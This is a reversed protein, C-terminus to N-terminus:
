RTLSVRRTQVTRGDSLRLLYLGPQVKAGRADRADWQVPHRGLVRGQYLTTVRRGAVDLVELHVDIPQPALIATRIDGHGPNPWPEALALSPAAPDGVALPNYTFVLNMTTDNLSRFNAFHLDALGAVPSRATLNFRRQDTVVRALGTRDTEDDITLFTKGTVADVFDLNVGEVPMGTFQEIAHVTVWHGGPHVVTGLNIAAAVQVSDFIVPLLKSAVPPAINMKFKTLSVLVSINGAADSADHPTHLRHLNPLSDADFDAGQVPLGGSTVSHATLTVGQPLALNPLTRDAVLNINEATATAFLLGSPPNGTIDYLGRALVFSATGSANTNDNPTFMRVSKGAVRVDFDAGTLPFLASNTITGTVLFGSELIKTGLASDASVLPIGPIEIPVKRSALTPLIEVDYTGPTVLAKYNGLADTLGDQVQAAPTGTGALNFGITAGAVASGNQGIVKGSAFRGAVMAVNTTTITTVTVGTRVVTFLHSAVTPKFTIDYKGSPVTISYNGTGNTSDGPTVLLVHSNSDRVDIDVPFVGAGGPGTVRGNLTAASVQTAIGALVASLLCCHRRRM